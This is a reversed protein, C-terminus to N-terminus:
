SNSAPEVCSITILDCANPSNTPDSSACTHTCAALADVQSKVSYVAGSTILNSSNQTPTTDIATYTVTGATSTATVVKDANAGGGLNDQKGSLATYVAGDTPIDTGNQAVATVIKKATPTGATTGYAVLSGNPYTTANNADLKNQKADVATYVGGSTVPNTSSATPTSDMTEAVWTTGNHQLIQNNSGSPLLGSVTGLELNGQGNVVLTKGVNANNTGVGQNIPVRLDDRADVYTKSTVITDASAALSTM